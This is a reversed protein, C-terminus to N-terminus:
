DAAAPQAERGGLACIASGAVVVFSAGVAGVTLPLAPFHAPFLAGLAAAGFLTTLPQLALVASVKSSEWHNLAEAFAGYAILTNAALFALLGLETAGLAPIAAPSAAPLMLLASALYIGMLVFQSPLYRLLRKQAVGYVAWLAAALVMLGVGTSFIDIGADSVRLREACFATIGGLLLVFGGWQWTTFREGFLWLSLLMLLVPALQVVTQAVPAAIFHLSQVYLVYNGILMLVALAFLWAATRGASHPWRLRGRAAFFALLCLGSSAFRFWSITVADLHAILPTMALPVAGWLVATTLALWFGLQWRGSLRQM